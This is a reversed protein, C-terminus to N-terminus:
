CDGVCPTSCQGASDCTGGTDCSGCSGGCGDDGCERGYCDPTCSSSGADDPPAVSADDPEGADDGPVGADDGPESADLDSMSADTSQGADSVAPTSADPHQPHETPPAVNSSSCALALLSLTVAAVIHRHRQM